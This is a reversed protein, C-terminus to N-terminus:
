GVIAKALKFVASSAAEYLKVVEDKDLDALEGAVGQAGAIADKLSAVAPGLKPLDRWDISGDEKAAVILDATRDVLAVVEMTEKLGLM